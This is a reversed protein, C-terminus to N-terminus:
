NEYGNEQLWRFLPLRSKYRTWLDKTANPGRTEFIFAAVEAENDYANNTERLYRSYLDSELANSFLRTQLSHALEELILNMNNNMIRDSAINTSSRQNVFNEPAFLWVIVGAEYPLIDGAESVPRYIALRCQSAQLNLMQTQAHPNDRLLRLTSDPVTQYRISFRKFPTKSTEVLDQIKKVLNSIDGLDPTSKSVSKLVKLLRKQGEVSDTPNGPSNM